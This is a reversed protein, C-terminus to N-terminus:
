KADDSLIHTLMAKWIGTPDAPHWELRISGQEGVVFHPPKSQADSFAGANHVAVTPEMLSQIVARAQGIWFAHSGGEIWECGADQALARAAQEIMNTM